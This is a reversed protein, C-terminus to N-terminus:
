GQSAVQAVRCSVILLLLAIPPDPSPEHAMPTLVLTFLNFKQTQGMSDDKRILKAMRMLEFKVHGIFRLRIVNRGWKDSGEAGGLFYFRSERSLLFWRLTLGCKRKKYKTNYLIIIISQQLDIVLCPLIQRTDVRHRPLVSIAQGPRGGVLQYSVTQM